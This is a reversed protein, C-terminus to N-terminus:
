KDMYAGSYFEQLCLISGDLDIGLDAIMKLTDNKICFNLQTPDPYLSLWLTISATKSLESLEKKAVSLKEVFSKIEDNLLEDEPVEQAFLMCDETFKVEEGRIVATENNRTCHPTPMNPLWQLIEEFPLSQSAIRFNIFQMTNREDYNEFLMKM